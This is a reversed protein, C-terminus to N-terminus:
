TATGATITVMDWRLNLNRDMECCKPIYAIPDVCFWAIMSHPKQDKHCAYGPQDNATALFEGESILIIGKTSPYLQFHIM